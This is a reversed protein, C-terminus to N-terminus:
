KAAEPPPLNSKVWNRIDEATELNRFSGNNDNKGKQIWMPSVRGKLWPFREEIDKIWQVRFNENTWNVDTGRSYVLFKTHPSGAGINSLFSVLMSDCMQYQITWRNSTVTWTNAAIANTFPPYELEQEAAIPHFFSSRHILALAPKDAIVLAEGRWRMEIWRVSIALSRIIVPLQGLVNKLEEANTIGKGKDKDNYVARDATSDIVVIVPIVPVSTDHTPRNMAVFVAGTIALLLVLLAAMRPGRPKPQQKGSPDPREESTHTAKVTTVGGPPLAAGTSRPKGGVTDSVSVLAEHLEEATQFRQKSDHHCAKLILNNMQLLAPITTFEEAEGPLEPFSKCPKGMFMGYFVKGLSYIDGTSEGPGEPPMYGASGVYSVGEGAETLLGIDAFKALGNM